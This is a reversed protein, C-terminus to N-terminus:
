IHNTKATSDTVESTIGQGTNPCHISYAFDAIFFVTLAFCIIEKPEAKLKAFTDHFRPYIVYVILLGCLGFGILSYLCIRGHLNFPMNSYDWWKLHQVIELYWGTFYELTGCLFISVLFVLPPYKRLHGVIILIGVGGFGYIPLWPGHLVGHNIFNGSQILTFFFEFAWGLFACVFFFLIYNILKSKSSHTPNPTANKAATPKSTKSPKTSKTTKINKTKKM